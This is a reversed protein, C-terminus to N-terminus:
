NARKICDNDAAVAVSHSVLRSLNIYSSNGGLMSLVALGMNHIGSADSSIMFCSFVVARSFLDYILM